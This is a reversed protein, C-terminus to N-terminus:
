FLLPEASKEGWWRGRQKGRTGQRWKWYSVEEADVHPFKLPLYEWQSKQQKLLLSGRDPLKWCKQHKTNYCKAGWLHLCKLTREYHFLCKSIRAEAWSRQTRRHVTFKTREDIHRTINCLAAVMEKRKGGRSQTAEETLYLAFNFM